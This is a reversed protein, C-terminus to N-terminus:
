KMEYDVIHRELLKRLPWSYNFEPNHFCSIKAFRHKHRRSSPCHHQRRCSATVPPLHRLIRQRESIHHIHLVPIRHSPGSGPPYAPYEPAPLSHSRSLPNAASLSCYRYRRSPSSIFLPHGKQTVRESPERVPIIDPRHTQFAATVEARRAGQRDQHLSCRM